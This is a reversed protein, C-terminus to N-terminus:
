FSAALRRLEKSPHPIQDVNEVLLVIKKQKPRNKLAYLLDENKSFLGLVTDTEM